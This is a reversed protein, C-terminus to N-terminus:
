EYTRMVSDGNDVENQLKKPIACYHDYDSDRNTQSLSRRNEDSIVKVSNFTGQLSCVISTPSFMDFSM